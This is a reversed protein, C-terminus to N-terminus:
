ANLMRAHIWTRGDGCIGWQRRDDHRRQLNRECVICLLLIQRAVQKSFFHHLNTKQLFLTVNSWQESFSWQDAFPCESGDKMHHRGDFFLDEINRLFCYCEMSQAWWEKNLGSQLLVASTGEKVKRVASEWCDWKNRTQTANVSLAELLIRLPNATFNEFSKGFKLPNNTALVTPKRTPELFKM